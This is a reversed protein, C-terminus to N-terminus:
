LYACKMTPLVNRSPSFHGGFCGKSCNLCSASFASTYDSCCRDSGGDLPVIEEKIGADGSEDEVLQHEAGRPGPAAVMM